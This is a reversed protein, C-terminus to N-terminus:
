SPLPELATREIHTKVSLERNHRVCGEYVLICCSRAKLWGSWANLTDAQSGRSRGLALSPSWQIEAILLSAWKLILSKHRPTVGVPRIVPSKSLSTADQPPSPSSACVGAMVSTSFKYHDQPVAFITTRIVSAGGLPTPFSPSLKVPDGPEESSLIPAEDFTNQGAFSGRCGAACIASLTDLPESTAPRWSM